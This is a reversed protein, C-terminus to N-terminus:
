DELLFFGFFWPCLEFVWTGLGFDLTQRNGPVM